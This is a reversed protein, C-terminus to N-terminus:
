MAATHREMSEFFYPTGFMALALHGSKTSDSGFAKRVWALM